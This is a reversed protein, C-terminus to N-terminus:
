ISQLDSCSHGILYSRVVANIKEKLWVPGFDAIDNHKAEPITIICSGYQKQEGSSPLVGEDAPFDGARISLVQIGANRPLPVRRHDLTIVGRVYGTHENALWASIDGGNSHGVLFLDDLDYADLRAVLTSRLFDLTQAGRMWNESRTEFLNGSVSLPPDGPLEHGVAVVLYGLQNLQKSLFQYELHSVGYGASLFAVPCKSSASCREADVPYSIDIPITRDRAEDFVTEANIGGAWVSSIWISSIWVSSVWSLTVLIFGKLYKM